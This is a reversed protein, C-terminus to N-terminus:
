ATEGTVEDLAAGGDCAGLAAISMSKSLTVMPMRDSRCCSSLVSREDSMMLPLTATRRAYASQRRYGCYMTGRVSADISRMKAGAYPVAFFFAVSMRRAISASSSTNVRGSIPVNTSSEPSESKELMTM